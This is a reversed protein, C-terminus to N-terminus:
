RKRRGGTACFGRPTSTLQSGLVWGRVIPDYPSDGKARTSKSFRLGIQSIRYSRCAIPELREKQSKFSLMSEEEERERLANWVNRRPNSVWKEGGKGREGDVNWVNRRPNSVFEHRIGSIASYYNWVNRRPNSVGGPVALFAGSVPHNWVNRRPNSVPSTM